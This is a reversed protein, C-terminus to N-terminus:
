HPVLCPDWLVEANTVMQLLGITFLLIVAVIAYLCSTLYDTKKVEGTAARGPQGKWGGCFLVAFLMLTSSAPKIVSSFGAMKWMCLTEPPQQWERTGMDELEEYMREDNKSGKSSEYMRKKLM